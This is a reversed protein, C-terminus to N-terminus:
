RQTLYAWKGQANAEWKMQKLDFSVTDDHYSVYAPLPCAQGSARIWCAAFWEVLTAMEIELTEVGANEYIKRRDVENLPIVEGIDELIGISSPLFYAHDDHFTENNQADILFMRMPVGDRLGDPFVEIDLLVVRPHFRYSLISRLQSELAPSLRDLLSRIWRKYGDGDYVEV